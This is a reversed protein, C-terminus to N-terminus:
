DGENYLPTSLYKDGRDPLIMVVFGERLGAIIEQAAVLATGASVGAFIGELRALARAAKFAPDDQVVITQDVVSRDYIPPVKSDAMSRLGEQKHKSQPEAAIMRISPNLIKLRRGCGVITGTTGLTVVVHTVREETQRWIEFATREYHADINAPNEYQRARWYKGPERAELEDAMQWATDSNGDPPTLIVEAGLAHLIRRRELSAKFPMCITVGIGRAAGVMALGIGTNGSSSELIRMGPRLSGDALAQDVMSVAIREKLSGLPNHGELKAYLSVNPNQNLRNIRVLPTRGVTEIISDFTGGFWESQDIGAL